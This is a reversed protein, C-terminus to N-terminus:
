HIESSVQQIIGRDVDDICGCQISGLPQKVNQAGRTRSGIDDVTRFNVYNAASLM